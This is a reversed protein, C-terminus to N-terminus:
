FEIDFFNYPRFSSANCLEVPESSLFQNFHLKLYEAIESEEGRKMVSVEKADQILYPQKKYGPHNKTDRIESSDHAYIYKDGDLCGGANYIFRCMRSKYYFPKRPPVNYAYYIGGGRRSSLSDNQSLTQEFKAFYGGAYPTNEESITSNILIAPPQRFQHRASSFGIGSPPSSLPESSIYGSTASDGDNHCLHCINQGFRNSVGGNGRFHSPISYGQISQISTHPNISNTYQLQQCNESSFQKAYNTHFGANQNRAPCCKPFFPGENQIQFSSLNEPFTPHSQQQQDNILVSPFGFSIQSESHAKNQFIRRLMKGFSLFSVRGGRFQTSTNNEQCSQTSLNPHTSHTSQYNLQVSEFGPPIVPAIGCAYGSTLPINDRQDFNHLANNGQVNLVQQSNQQASSFDFWTQNSSSENLQDANPMQFDMTSSESSAAAIKDNAFPSVSEAVPPLTFIDVGRSKFEYFQEVFSKERNLGATISLPAPNIYSKCRDGYNDGSPLTFIEVGRSKFEYFQEVFSKNQSM